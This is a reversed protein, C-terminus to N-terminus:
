NRWTQAFLDDHCEPPSAGLIAELPKGTATELRKKIKLANELRMSIAKRAEPDDSHRVMKERLRTELDVTYDDRTLKDALYVIEMANIPAKDHITIDMHAGVIEAVSPYGMENLIREGEKAHDPQNRALDHLLGAAVILDLDFQRGCKNVEKGLIHALRAVELCHAIIREEMGFKRRMLVRCEEITPIDYRKLKSILCQYNSSTDLDMHICEDAVAVNQADNEHQELFSRLGGTGHWSTIKRSYFAPILPPHGRRGDFYPYLILGPSNEFEAMLDLLTQHRVLPVDAPLVFFAEHDTDLSKVGTAVSSFMGDKYQENFIWQVNLHRLAKILDESRYGVVVRTDEIGASRFLRIVRDLVSMGGLPLLPKLTEMRSSYGAAPIIAAIKNM